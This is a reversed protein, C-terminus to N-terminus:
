PIPHGNIYVRLAHKVAPFKLYAGDAKGNAPPWLITSTYYGIGSANVLEPIETWSVLEPLQLATNHKVAITSADSLNQPAEWHEATLEWGALPFAAATASQNRIHYRKGTSLVLPKQV